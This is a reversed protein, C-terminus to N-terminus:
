RAAPTGTQRRAPNGIRQLRGRDKIKDCFVQDEPGPRLFDATGHDQMASHHFITSGGFSSQLTPIIPKASHSRIKHAYRPDFFLILGDDTKSEWYEMIGGNWWEMM